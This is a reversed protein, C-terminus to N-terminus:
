TEADVAGVDQMSPRPIQASFQALGIALANHQAGKGGKDYAGIASYRQVLAHGRRVAMPLLWRRM